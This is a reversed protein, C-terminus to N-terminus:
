NLGEVYGTSFDGQPLAFRGFAGSLADIQDDHPGAPFLCLEEIFSENWAARKLLLNGHAAQAAVPEARTEKSGSEAETHVVFGVLLHVFDAAQVKGAQGPEKPLSIRCHRGDLEATSKILARVEHGEKRVRIVDGVIFKGNPLKGLKLGCTYDATDTVSAALDWHRWWEVGSPIETGEIIQGEGFWERKFMGGGRPVPRQQYQGAIAYETLSAQRRDLAEIPFQEPWLAEGENQRPDEWVEATSKRVVNTRMPFPHKAELRAPLNVHTWRFPDYEHAMDVHVANIEHSLIYGTLDLAHTRQMVIILAGYRDNFRSPLQETYFQVVDRRQLNSEVGLVDHPDDYIVIDGGKGTIATIIGAIRTGGKTNRFATKLDEDNVMGVQHGWRTQYWDSRMLRRCAVNHQTALSDQYSLGVFKVGPGRWTNPRIAAGVLEPKRKPNPNQAWVWAPFSIGVVSSKCHRPPLNFIVRLIERNAVAQLHDCLCEIHWGTKFPVSEFQPWADKTFELLSAECERKRLEREVINLNYVNVSNM